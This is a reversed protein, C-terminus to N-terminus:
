GRGKRVIGHRAEDDEKAAATSGDEDEEKVVAASVAEDEEKAVIV